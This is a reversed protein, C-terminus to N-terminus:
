SSATGQVQFVRAVDPDGDGEVEAGVEAVFDEGGMRVAFDDLGAEKGEDEGPEDGFFFVEEQM